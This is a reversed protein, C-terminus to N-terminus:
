LLFFYIFEIHINNKGNASKFSIKDKIFTKYTKKYIQSILLDVFDYFFNNTKKKM